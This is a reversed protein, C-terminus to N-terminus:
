KELKTYVLAFDTGVTYGLNIFQETSGTKITGELQGASTLIFPRITLNKAFSLGRKGHIKYLAEKACWYICNKTLDKGADAEEGRALVRPAVTLLKAKPQEIDIGVEQDRSLQVAVYPYSHSLSIRNPHDRLFPKGFEDKLIESYTLGSKKLLLAMVIRGAFWEMRKIPSLIDNPCRDPLAQQALQDESEAIHWVAWGDQNGTMEIKFLPMPKDPKGRCNQLFVSLRCVARGGHFNVLLM